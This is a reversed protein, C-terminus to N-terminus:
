TRPLRPATVGKRRCTACVGHYLGAVDTREADQKGCGACRPASGRAADPVERRRKRPRTPSSEGFLNTHASYDPPATVGCFACSDLGHECLASTENEQADSPM